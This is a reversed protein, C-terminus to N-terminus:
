PPTSRTFSRRARASSAAPTMAHFMEGKTKDPHIITIAWRGALPKLPPATQCGALLPLLAESFGVGGKLSPDPAKHSCEFM